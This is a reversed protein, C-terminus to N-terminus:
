IGARDRKLPWSWRLPDIQDEVADVGDRRYAKAYHASLSTSARGEVLATRLEDFPEPLSLISSPRVYLMCREYRKSM